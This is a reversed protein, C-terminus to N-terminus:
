LSDGHTGFQGDDVLVARRCSGRASLLGCRCIRWRCSLRGLLRWRGGSGRRLILLRGVLLGLGRVLLCRVLLCRVPLGLVLLCPVPLVGIRLGRGAVLSRRGISVPALLGTLGVGPLGGAVLHRRWGM